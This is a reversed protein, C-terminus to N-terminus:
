DEKPGMEPVVIIRPTWWYGERAGAEKAKLRDRELAIKKLIELYGRWVIPGSPYGQAKEQDMIYLHAELAQQAKRYSEFYVHHNLVNYVAKALEM